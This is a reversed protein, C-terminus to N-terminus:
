PRMLHTEGMRVAGAEVSTVMTSTRVDVGLHRLQEEASRSLDEPYAPLIRPGGELLIIRTSKPDISQFENALVRRSIEALTGALEVGTPGGGVIM